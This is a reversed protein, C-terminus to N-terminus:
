QRIKQKEETAAYSKHGTSGQGLIEHRHQPLQQRHQEVLNVYAPQDIVNHWEHPDKDHDYFEESGDNYQIFRYRESVIAYNGPGFSTRAYHPWEGAPDKLLPALSHGELLPDAELGILELLTPYIDLLQVPKNCVQGKAIGPGVIILPVRAGDEWLSRKAYREKEGLHFGHDSFLVMYTNDKYDSNEVAKVVKGVQEDVFSVCALYSQVLPKWEENETVWEHTPSVHNLRTIDIGYLSIDSLDDGVVEPLQLTELPFLNFWKQPAFQPVHPRYFGVGMWLASDHKEQLHTAAWDAIKYDPMQEDKEPYVGWDWLPHGPYTSIKQEPMPGFGGFQGGYNPIYNENQHGGNHFLKGVGTVHYGEQQFRGPMLTSKAAVASQKLDPNLFYIGSTSPYLSSMLSARSPNCVPSQCHANTFLMGKAALADMNPTHAQPHGGLCGIWDNLDDVAILIVNPKADNEGIKKDRECSLITAATVWLITLLLLTKLNM